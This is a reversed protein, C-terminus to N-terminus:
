PSLVAIDEAGKVDSSHKDLGLMAPCGVTLVLAVAALLTWMAIRRIRPKM